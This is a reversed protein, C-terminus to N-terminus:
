VSSMDHKVKLRNQGRFLILILRARQMETHMHTHQGLGSRHGKHYLHKQLMNLHIAQVCFADVALGTRGASSSFQVLYQFSTLGEVCGEVEQQKISFHM